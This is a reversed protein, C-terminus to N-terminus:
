HQILCTVLSISVGAPLIRKASHFAEVGVGDVRSRGSESVIVKPGMWHGSGFGKGTSKRM